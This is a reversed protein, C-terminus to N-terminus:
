IMYSYLDEIQNNIRNNDLNVNESDITEYYKKLLEDEDLNFKEIVLERIKYESIIEEDEENDEIRSNREELEEFYKIHEAETFLYIDKEPYKYWDGVGDGTEINFLNIYTDLYGITTSNSRSYSISVEGDRADIDVEIYGSFSYGRAKNFAEHAINDIDLNDIMSKLMEKNIVEIKSERECCNNIEVTTLLLNVTNNNKM